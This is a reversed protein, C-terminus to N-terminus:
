SFETYPSAGGSNRRGRRAEIFKSRQVRRPPREQGDIATAEAKIERQLKLLTAVRNENAAFNPALTIAMEVAFLSRFLPDMKSVQKFDKIYTVNISANDEGNLFLYRGQIDYDNPSGTRQGLDDFRGVFRVFDVPLLYAHSFGFEPENDSDPTLVVQQKAFNWIHARLCEVRKQPYWLACLEETDSQPPDISTIHRQKLHTLAMNCIDVESTPVTLSM